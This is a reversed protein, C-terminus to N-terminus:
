AKRLFSSVLRVAVKKEAIWHIDANRKFWTMQRKAYDCDARWILKIMEQKSIKGQLHRSLFRYDLGMADLRKWSLGEAHLRRVEAVMGQQLRTLLRTRINKKLTERPPNLGIWLANYKPNRTPLDPVPKKTALVIELARILRRPNHKDIARARRPDLKALRRYLADVNVKELRKRLKLDPKIEPLATGFVLADVYQGTGGCIIPIKGRHLIDEIAISALRMYRAVSFQRKPSAVDLLHHAVIKQERADAKGTGLDMGTYVQRSDASIIEGGFKKAIMIALSTKGSSTPGVVALIKHTKRLPQM